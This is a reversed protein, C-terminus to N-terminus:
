PVIRAEVGEEMRSPQNVSAARTPQPEPDPDPPKESPPDDSPVRASARESEPTTRM